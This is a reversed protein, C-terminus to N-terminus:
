HANNRYSQYVESEQLRFDSFEFLETFTCAQKTLHIAYAKGGIHIRQPLPKLSQLSRQEHMMAELHELLNEDPITCEPKVGVGFQLRESAFGATSRYVFSVVNGSEESFGFHYITTTMDDLLSYDAKYQEWLSRLANPTHYDLNEIGRIVMQNNVQAFWDTSFGCVGTGAVVTQLHPLYNAKSTFFSPSGNLDTTLTDTVVLVQEADTYFILSSM